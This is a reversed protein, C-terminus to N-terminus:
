RVKIASQENGLVFAFKKKTRFVEDNVKFLIIDGILDEVIGIKGNHTGDTLMVTCKKDLKYHDLVKQEPVSFLLSDGLKYTDKEVLVNRGDSLNLQVKGKVLSKGIIKALKKGAEPSDVKIATLSGKSNLTIRYSENLLPLSLADMFGAIFKPEKRRVGNVLVEKNNLIFKSEKATTALNLIDRLVFNLSTGLSYSQAGPLPKTVFTIGKRKMPWSTPAIYRKITLSNGM